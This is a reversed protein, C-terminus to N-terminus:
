AGAQLLDIAPRAASPSRVHMYVMTTELRSHGLLDQIERLPVGAELMHTAYCHRLLHPHVRGQVGAKGAADRLAERVV